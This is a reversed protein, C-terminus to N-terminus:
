EYVIIDRILHLESSLYQVSFGRVSEVFKVYFPRNVFASIANVSLEKWM